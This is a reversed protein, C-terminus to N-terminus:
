WETIEKLKGDECELNVTQRHMYQIAGCRKDFGNSDYIDDGPMWNTHCIGKDDIWGYSPDQYLISSYKVDKGVYNYLRKM